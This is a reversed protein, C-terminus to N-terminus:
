SGVMMVSLVHSVKVISVSLVANRVYMELRRITPIVNMVFLLRNVRTVDLVVTKVHGHELSIGCEKLVPTLVTHRSSYSSAKTVLSASQIPIESAPPASNMVLNVAMRRHTTQSTDTKAHLASLSTEETAFHALKTANPVLVKNPILLAEMEVNRSVHEMSTSSGNPM